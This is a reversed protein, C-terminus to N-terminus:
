LSGIAPCASKIAISRARIARLCQFLRRQLEDLDVLTHAAHLEEILSASDQCNARHLPHKMLTNTGEAALNPIFTDISAMGTM